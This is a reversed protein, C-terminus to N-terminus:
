PRTVCVRTQSIDIRDTRKLIGHICVLEIGITSVIERLLVMLHGVPGFVALAQPLASIQSQILSSASPSYQGSSRRRPRIAQLSTYLWACFASKACAESRQDFDRYRRGLVRAEAWSGGARSRSIVSIAAWPRIAPLLGTAVILRLRTSVMILRQPASMLRHAWGVKRSSRYSRNPTGHLNAHSTDM